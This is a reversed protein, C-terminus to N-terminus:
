YSHWDILSEQLIHCSVFGCSSPQFIHNLRVSGGRVESLLILRENLYDAKGADREVCLRHQRRLNRGLAYYSM